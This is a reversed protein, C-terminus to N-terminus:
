PKSWHSCVMSCGNWQRYLVWWCQRLSNCPRSRSVQPHKATSKSEPSCLFYFPKIFPHFRMRDPYIQWFLFLRLSIYGICPLVGLNRTRNTARANHGGQHSHDKKELLERHCLGLSTFQKPCGTAFQHHPPKQFISALVLCYVGDLLMCLGNFQLPCFGHPVM